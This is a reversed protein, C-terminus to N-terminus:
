EFSPFLSSRVIIFLVWFAIWRPNDLISGKLAQASYAPRYLTLSMLLGCFGWYYSCSLM